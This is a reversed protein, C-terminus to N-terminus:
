VSTGRIPPEITFLLCAGQKQPAQMSTSSASVLCPFLFLKLYYSCHFFSSRIYSVSTRLPLSLHDHFVGSSGTHSGSGFHPPALYALLQPFTTWTSTCCGWTPVFSRSNLFYFTAAAAPAHSPSPFAPCCSAPLSALTLGCLSLQGLFSVSNNDLTLLFCQLFPFLCLSRLESASNDGRPLM